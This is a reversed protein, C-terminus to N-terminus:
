INTSVELENISSQVYPVFCRKTFKLNFYYLLTRDASCNAFRKKIGGVRILGKM